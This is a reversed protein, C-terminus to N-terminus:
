ETRQGKEARGSDARAGGRTLPAATSPRSLARGHRPRGLHPHSLHRPEITAEVVPGDALHVNQFPCLGDTCAYTGRHDRVVIFTRGGHAFRIVDQPAIDDVARADIWQAM